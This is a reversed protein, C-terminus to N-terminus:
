NDVHKLHNAVTKSIQGKQGQHGIKSRRIYEFNFKQLINQIEAYQSLHIHVKTQIILFQAFSVYKKYIHGNLENKRGKVREGSHVCVRVNTLFSELSGKPHRYDCKLQFIAMHVNENEQLYPGTKAPQNHGPGACENQDNCNNQPILHNLASM